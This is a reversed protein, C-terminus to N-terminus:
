MKLDEEDESKDSDSDSDWKVAKQQYGAEAKVQALEAAHAREVAGFDPQSVPSFPAAAPAAALQQQQALVTEPSHPAPQPQFPSYPSPGAWALGSKDYWLQQDLAGEGWSPQRPMEQHPNNLPRVPPPDHSMWASGYQQVPDAHQLGLDNGLTPAQNPAAMLTPALAIPTPHM